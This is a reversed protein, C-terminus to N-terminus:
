VIRGKAFRTLGALDALVAIETFGADELIGRVAEGQDDGIELFCWGGRRLAISADNVVERVVDLGDAGGDLAIRPEHDRILPPLGDVVRSAIYPPNSVVADLSAEAAGGCNRGHRFEVKDAVGCLAANERALSLAAADADVALLRCQPREVALSIAICGTGTGVDCIRPEPSNWVEREDLVLQVLQETEPRPILARSDTKLTLCRFDWEGIVYQVPEGGGLRRVGDRMQSVFPEPAERGLALELETRSSSLLAAALWECQLRADEIKRSELWSAGASLIDGIRRGSAKADSEM